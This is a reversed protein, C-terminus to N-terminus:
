KAGATVTADNMLMRGMSGVGVGVVRNRIAMGEVPIYLPQWPSETLLLKQADYYIQGRKKPDMERAGSELLADAQPNSYWARNTQKIRSTSLYMNLVDPDNWDYRWLLLDFTGDTTAKMVAASDLQQIEVTVGVAKLQSQLVTAIVDNPARTSTLLTGGLRKGGREWSGDAAQIFGAERLLAKSKAPDYGQGFKALDANYGALTPPLLTNAAEGLGGLALKIIEAKNVAYSLAQRVKVENFPPRACNYGLYILSDLTERQVKISPDAELKQFHAPDNIFMVDVQGSQLAALQTNADPIVQFVLRDVKAAGKNKASPPAWAYAPNRALTISVGPKWEELKFLGTGVPKRGMDAGATQVAGPSLIAAYPQSLTGLFTASPKDFSFRVTMDDVGVVSAMDAIGSYIPSKSGSKKFREFTFVVAAANLPSGDHFTVGKRLKFTISKGDDATQWSEALYPKYTNDTERFVLTDFLYPLVLNLGSAAAGQPDIAPPESTLARTVTGGSVPASTPGAAGATPQAAPSAAPTCGALVGAILVLVLLRNFLKSKPKLM